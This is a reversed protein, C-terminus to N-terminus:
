SQIGSVKVFACGLICKGDVREVAKIETANRRWADGGERTTEVAISQRDGIAYFSFDGFYLQDEPIDNQEYIPHGLVMDVPRRTVDDM